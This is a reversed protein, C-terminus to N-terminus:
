GGIMMPSFTVDRPSPERSCDPSRRRGGASNLPIGRSFSAPGTTPGAGAVEHSRARGGRASGTSRREDEPRSVARLVERAEASAGLGQQARGLWYYLPPLYRMTPLDYFFVDTAEGRRKFGAGARTLGEAFHDAEVYAKGLLCRGSWSDHRQKAGRLAEIGESVRGHQLAVAGRIIGAYATTQRQLMKDLDAAIQLALEERGLRALVRAAPFLTSEHRSM